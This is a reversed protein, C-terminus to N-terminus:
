MGSSTAKPIKSNALAEEITKGESVKMHYAAAYSRANETMGPIAFILAECEVDNIMGYMQTIEEMGIPKSSILVEVVTNGNYRRASGVVQSEQEIWGVRGMILIDFLHQTGSRGSVFAPAVITYGLSKFFKTCVDLPKIQQIEKLQLSTNLSYTYLYIEPQEDAEATTECDKCTVAILPDNTLNNCELCRYASPLKRYDSGILQLKGKCKPCVLDGNGKEFAEQKEVTGCAFHEILGEKSLRLSRCDPCMRKFQVNASGCTRCVLMKDALEAKLFGKRVLSDLVQRSKKTEWGLQPMGKLTYGEPKAADIESVIQNVKGYLFLEIVAQEDKQLRQNSATDTTDTSRLSASQASATGTSVSKGGNTNETAGVTGQTGLINATPLPVKPNSPTQNLKTAIGFGASLGAEFIAVLIVTAMLQVNNALSTSFPVGEIISAFSKLPYINQLNPAYVAAFSLAGVAFIIALSGALLSKKKTVTAPVWTVSLGILMGVALALIPAIAPYLQSLGM